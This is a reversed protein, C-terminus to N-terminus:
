SGFVRATHSEKSVIDRTSNRAAFSRNGFAFAPRVNTPMGAELFSDTAAHANQDCRSGEEIDSEGFQYSQQKNSTFHDTKTIGKMRRDRRPNSSPDHLEHPM